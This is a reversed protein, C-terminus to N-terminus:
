KRARDYHEQQCEADCFMMDLQTDHGYAAMFHCNQCAWYPKYWLKGLIKIAKKVDVKTLGVANDVRVFHDKISFLTQKDDMMELSMDDLAVYSEVYVKEDLRGPVYGEYYIPDPLLKNRVNTSNDHLWQYIEGTRSGEFEYKKDYRPTTSYIELDEAALADTLIQMPDYHKNKKEFRWTSSLVIKAGTMCVITKLRSVLLPEIVWLKRESKSNNLVGDCDLFIIKVRMAVRLKCVRVLSIM